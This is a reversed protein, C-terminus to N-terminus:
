LSNVLENQKNNIKFIYEAYTIYPSFSILLNIKNNELLNKVDEVKDKSVIGKSFEINLRYFEKLKDFLNYSLNTKFLQYRIYLMYWLSVYHKLTIKETKEALKFEPPNLNRNFEKKLTYEANINSNKLFNKIEVKENDNFISSNENILDLLNLYTESFILIEFFNGHEIRGSFFMQNTLLAKNIFQKASEKNETSILYNIYLNMFKNLNNANNLNIFSEFFPSNEEFLYSLESLNHPINEEILNILQQIKATDPIFEKKESLMKRDLNSSRDIVTLIKDALLAKEPKITAFEVIEFPTTKIKYNYLVHKISNYLTRNLADFNLTFLVALLVFLYPILKLLNNKIIKK